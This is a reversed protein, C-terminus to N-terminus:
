AGLLRSSDSAPLSAADQVCCRYAPAACGFRGALSVSLGLISRDRHVWSMPPTSRDAIYHSLNLDSSPMYTSMIYTLETLIQSLIKFLIVSLQPTPSNIGLGARQYEM